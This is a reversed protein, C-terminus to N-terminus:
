YRHGIHTANRTVYDDDGGLAHPLHEYGAAVEGRLKICLVTLTSTCLTRYGASPLPLYFMTFHM